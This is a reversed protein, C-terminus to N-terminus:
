KKKINGDKDFQSVYAWLNDVEKDNKIGAFFMKTGPVMADPGSLWKDLNAETWVIKSNKLAPSYYFDPVAAAKRGVVGFLNPGMGNGGGKNANHCMACRNFVEEGHKPDGAAFAASSLFAAAIVFAALRM